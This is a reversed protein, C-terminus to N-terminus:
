SGGGRSAWWVGALFAGVAVLAFVLGVAYPVWLPLTVTRRRAVAPPEASRKRGGSKRANLDIEFPASRFAEDGTPVLLEELSKEVAAGEFTTVVGGTAEAPVCVRTECRPCVISSGHWRAPVYLKSRCGTCRFKIPM